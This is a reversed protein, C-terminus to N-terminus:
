IWLIRQLDEALSRPRQCHSCRAYLGGEGSAANGKLVLQYKHWGCHPCAKGELERRIAGIKGVQKQTHASRRGTPKEM